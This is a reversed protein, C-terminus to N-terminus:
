PTWQSAMTLSLWYSDTWCWTSRSSRTPYGRRRRLQFTLQHHERHPVPTGSWLRTVTLPIQPTTTFTM